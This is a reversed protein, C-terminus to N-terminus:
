LSDILNEAAGILPAFAGLEANVIPLDRQAPPIEGTFGRQLEARWEEGAKAVSGSLIVIDPDLINTLSAIAQGLAFGAEKIIRRAPQEGKAALASIEAGSLHEDTAEFYRAEIGSGASVSELHGRGGCACPIGTASSSAMHGVEGAFGHKGRVIRGHAIVAGGVGTGAAIMICTDAGRGAGWRAEGVAYAQVDNLVAAPLSCRERLTSALPQGGWGPMLDNAYAIDGTKADVRGATGVGVGLVPSSADASLECALTCIKDLVSAGGRAAETAITRSEEVVPATTPSDYRVIGGTIKTAGVDIAVVRAPLACHVPFTAM